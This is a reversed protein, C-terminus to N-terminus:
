TVLPLKLGCFARFQVRFYLDNLNEGIIFVGLAHISEINKPVPFFLKVETKMNTHLGQLRM